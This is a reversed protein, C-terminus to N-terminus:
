RHLCFHKHIKRLLFSFTLPRAIADGSGAVGLSCGVGSGSSIECISVHLECGTNCLARSYNSLKDAQDFESVGLHLGQFPM